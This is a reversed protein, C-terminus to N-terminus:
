RHNEYVANTWINQENKRRIVLGKMVKGGSTIIDMELSAAKFAKKNINALLKTGKLSGTNFVYSALADFQQQNLATTVYKNIIDVSKKKLDYEFLREAEPLSIGKEYDEGALLLHGYGITWYGKPRGSLEKLENKYKKDADDYITLAPQGSGGPGQEWSKIFLKGKDSVSTAAVTAPLATVLLGNSPSFDAMHNIFYDPEGIVVKKTLKKKVISKKNPHLKKSFLPIHVKTKQPM